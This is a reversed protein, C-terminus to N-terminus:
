PSVGEPDQYISGKIPNTINQNLLEADLLEDVDEDNEEMRIGGESFSIKFNSKLPIYFFGFAILNLRTRFDVM